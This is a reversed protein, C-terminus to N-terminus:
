GNKPKKQLWRQVHATPFSFVKLSLILTLAVAGLPWLLKGAIGIGTVINHVDLATLVYIVPRHWFYVQMTRQGFETLKGLRRRPVILLFSVGVACTIAYCMLRVLPGITRYSDLFPNRGTFLKRLFYVDKLFLFCVALAGILVAAGLIRLWRKSLVALLKDRDILTGFLYFPFFVIARSLCLWDGVEKDYGVFCALIISFVLFARRSVGARNLLGTLLVFVAMMICFWPIGSETLLSFSVKGVTILRTLTITGKLLLALVLYYISKHLRKSLPTSERDFLGSLFFFAPMHFSYIFLFLSKYTDYTATKEDLFHGIVVLAMLIFKCNDFYAVRNKQIM